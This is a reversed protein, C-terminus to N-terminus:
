DDAYSDSGVDGFPVLSNLYAQRQKCPGCTKIGIANTIRAIVDGLGRARVPPKAKWLLEGPSVRELKADLRRIEDETGDELYFTETARDLRIM